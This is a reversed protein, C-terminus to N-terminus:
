SRFLRFAIAGWLVAGLVISPIFLPHARFNTKHRFLLMGFLSGAFGGAVSILNLVAEPVRVTDTKSLVKDLGFYVFAVVGASLLWNFYWSWQTTNTLLLFLVAACALAILGFTIHYRYRRSMDHSQQTVDGSM